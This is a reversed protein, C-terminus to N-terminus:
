GEVTLTYWFFFFAVMFLAHKSNDDGNVEYATQSTIPNFALFFHGVGHGFIGMIQKKIPTYTEERMNTSCMSITFYMVIAIATDAYFCM